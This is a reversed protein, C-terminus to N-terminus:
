GGFILGTPPRGRTAEGRHDTLEHDPEGPLVRRPTMAADVFLQDAQAIPYRRRRDPVDQTPRSQIWSWSAGSRRPALEAPGLRLRHQGTLEEGHIAHQQAPAVHEEDELDASPSNMEKPYRPM